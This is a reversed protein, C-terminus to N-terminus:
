SGAVCVLKPRQRKKLNARNSCAKQCYRKGPFDPRFMRGCEWCSQPPPLPKKKKPMAIWGFSEARQSNSWKAICSKGCFRQPKRGSQDLPKFHTGCWECARSPAAERRADRWAQATAIAEERHDAAWRAQHYARFCEHSCYKRRERGEEVEPMIRRCHLCRSAVPETYEPQGQAWTPRIAGIQRLAASVLDDATAEAEQWKWGDLCLGSRIGHRCSAEFAFYTPRGDKLITAVTEVLHRRRDKSLKRAKAVRAVPKIWPVRALM